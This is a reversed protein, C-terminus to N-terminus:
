ENMTLRENVPWAQMNIRILAGKKNYVGWATFNLLVTVGQTTMRENHM